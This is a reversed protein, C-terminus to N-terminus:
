LLYYIFLCILMLLFLGLGEFIFFTITRSNVKKSPPQYEDNLRDKRHFVKHFSRSTLDFFEKSVVYLLLGISLYGASILFM